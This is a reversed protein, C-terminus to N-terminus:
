SQALKTKQYAEAAKEPTDFGSIRVKVGNIMIQMRWKGQHASVGLIKTKSNKKAKHVNHLNESRTVDRLNNFANNVRNGDIHDIHNIPWIGTMYLWALRHALKKQNHISISIYGSSHPSGAKKDLLDSRTTRKVWTFVGTDPNYNLIEKLYDVTIDNMNDGITTIVILKGYSAFFTLVLIPALM